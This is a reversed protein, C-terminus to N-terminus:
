QQLRPRERAPDSLKLRQYPYISTLLAHVKQSQNEPTIKLGHTPPHFRAPGKTAVTSRASIRANTPVPEPNM